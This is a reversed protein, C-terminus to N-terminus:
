LGFALVICHLEGVMCGVPVMSRLAHVGTGEELKFGVGM